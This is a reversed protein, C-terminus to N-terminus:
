PPASHYGIQGIKFALPPSRLDCKELRPLVELYVTMLMRIFEWNPPVVLRWAGDDLIFMGSPTSRSESYSFYQISLPWKQDELLVEKKIM